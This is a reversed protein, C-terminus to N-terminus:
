KYSPARRMRKVIIWIILILVILLVLIWGIKDLVSIITAQNNGYYYGLGILVLSWLGAGLGTFLCFKGMNMKSFGAPLSILHRVGPLLRGFFVTTSGHNKFFNETKILHEQTLFLFKGYKLTLKEFTKRGVFYALYYSFISGLFTGLLSIVFVLLFSLNGGSILVGAPPLIIESPIPIISSEIAMLIFIGFYGMSGVLSVLFNIITSILAM